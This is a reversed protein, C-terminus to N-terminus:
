FCDHHLLMNIVTMFLMKKEWLKATRNKIFTDTVYIEADRRSICGKGQHIDISFKNTTYIM